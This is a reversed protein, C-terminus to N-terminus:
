YKAFISVVILKTSKYYCVYRLSEFVICLHNKHNFHGLLRIVHKRDDPDAHALQDLSAMEKLGAKYRYVTLKL